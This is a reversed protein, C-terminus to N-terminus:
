SNLPRGPYLLCPASCIERRAMGSGHCEVGWLYIGRLRIYSFEDKEYRMAERNSKVVLIIASWNDM